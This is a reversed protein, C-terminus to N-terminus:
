DQPAVHMADETLLRVIGDPYLPVTGREFEALSKWEATYTVGGDDTGKVRTSEPWDGPLEVEYVLVVEHGPTGDFTFVNEITGLYEGVDVTVDLEEEFERVVADTGYEGFEIGGGVPRYFREDAHSDYLEAVFVEGDRRPVGLALERIRNSPM